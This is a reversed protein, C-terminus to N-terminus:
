LIYCRGDIGRFFSEQFSLRRCTAGKSLVPADAGPPDETLRFHVRERNEPLIKALISQLTFMFESFHGTYTHTQILTHTHTVVTIYLGFM